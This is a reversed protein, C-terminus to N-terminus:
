HCMKLFVLIWCPIAIELYVFFMPPLDAIRDGVRQFFDRLTRM